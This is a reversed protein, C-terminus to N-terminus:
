ERNRFVVCVRTINFNIAILMNLCNCLKVSPSSKLISLPSLKHFTYLFLHLTFTKGWVAKRKLIKDLRWYTGTAPRKLFVEPSLRCLSFEAGEIMAVYLVVNLLSLVINYLQIESIGLM